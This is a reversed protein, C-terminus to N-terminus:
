YSPGGNPDDRWAIDRLEDATRPRRKVADYIRQRIPPLVITPAIIQGCCPCTKM